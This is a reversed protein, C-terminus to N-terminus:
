QQTNIGTKKLMGDKVISKKIKNLSSISRNIWGPYDPTLSVLYSQPALVQINM